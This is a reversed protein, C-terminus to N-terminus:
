KNTQKCKQQHGNTWDKKQCAKSCYKIKPNNCGACMSLKGVAKPCACCKEDIKKAISKSGFRRAQEVTTGLYSSLTPDAAHKKLLKVLKKKTNKPLKGTFVVLQLPTFANDNRANADAGHELLLRCTEYHGAQIAYHLATSNHIPYNRPWVEEGSSKDFCRAMGGKLHKIGKIIHCFVNTANVDASSGLLLQVIETYGSHAAIHLSTWGGKERAEINAGRTLLRKGVQYQRASTALHLPTQNNVQTANTEIDGKSDLLLDVMACNGSQAALHLITNGTNSSIVDKKAGAALLIKAMEFHSEKDSGPKCMLVMQLPTFTGSNDAQDKIEMSANVDVKGTALIQRLAKPNGEAIARSAAETGYEKDKKEGEMGLAGENCSSLILHFLILVLLSMAAFPKRQTAQHYGLNLPIQKKPSM